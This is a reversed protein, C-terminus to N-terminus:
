KAGLRVTALTQIETTVLLLPAVLLTQTSVTDSRLWYLGDWSSSSALFSALFDLLLSRAM